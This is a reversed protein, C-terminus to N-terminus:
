YQEYKKIGNTVILYSGLSNCDYDLLEDIINEYARALSNYLDFNSEEFQIKMNINQQILINKVDIRSYCILSTKYVIASEFLLTKEDDFEKYDKLKKLLIKEASPANEFQDITNDSLYNKDIKLLSRVRNYFDFIENYATYAM